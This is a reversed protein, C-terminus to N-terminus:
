KYNYIIVEKTDNNWVIDTNKNETLNSVTKNFAKGIVSIPAVLRGNKIIPDVELEYSKGDKTAKKTDINIQLIDNHQKFTATRTNNDYSVELGLAEAVNRIPLYTRDKEIFPAIDMQKVEEKGATIKKYSTEGIKFIIQNKNTTQKNEKELDEKIKDLESKNDKEESKSAEKEKPKYTDTHDIITIEGYHFTDEIPKFPITPITIDPNFPTEPTVPTEPNDPLKDKLKIEVKIPIEKESGDNFIIKVLGEKLGETETDIPKIEIIEKIEPTKEILEALNVKEGQKVEITSVTIEPTNIEAQPEKVIVPIEVKRKSNNKFIIEVLGKYEGSKTTDIKPETIDKVTAGDPLNEINDTLDIEGNWDVEETIIDDANPTPIPTIETAIYIVNIPIEVELYSEDSFTIRVKSTQKGLKTLDLPTENIDTIIADEPLNKIASAYNVEEPNTSHEIDIEQIEPTFALAQAPQLNSTNITITGLEDVAETDESAEIVGCLPTNVYPHKVTRTISYALTINKKDFNNDLQLINDKISFGLNEDEVPPEGDIDIITYNIPLESKLLEQKRTDMDYTLNNDTLSYYTNTCYTSYESEKYEVYDGDFNYHSIFGLDKIKSGDLYLYVLNPWSKKNSIKEIPNGELSISKLEKLSEISSIDTIQNYMLNLGELNTLNMLPSINKIKNEYLSLYKLNILSEIPSIDEIKMNDAYLEKLTIIHGVENFYKSPLNNIFLTELKPLTRLVKVSTEIDEIYPEEAKYPNSIDLLTLHEKGEM